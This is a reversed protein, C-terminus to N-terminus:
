QLVLVLSHARLDARVRHCVVRVFQSVTEPILKPDCILNLLLPTIWVICEVGQSAQNLAPVDEDKLHVHWDVIGASEDKDIFQRRHNDDVRRVLYFRPYEGQYVFESM